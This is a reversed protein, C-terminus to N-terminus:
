KNRLSMTALMLDWIIELISELRTVLFIEYPSLQDLSKKIRNKTVERNENLKVVNLNNYNYFLEYFSHIQDSIDRTIQKTHQHFSKKKLKLLDRAAYKYVDVISDLNDVIHYLIAMENATPYVKKNLLRLSYSVFKTITDHKREFSELVTRDYTSLAQVFEKSLSNIMLFIRRLSNDFDDISNSSYDKIMVFGKEQQVVEVGVLRDVEFHIVSLTSVRQNIRFHPVIDNEYHVHIEDYGIRYCSRIRLIISTRDLGTIDIEVKSLKQRRETGIRLEKEGIEVEVEDGKQINNEKVWKSPLSVMLTSPGIRSVKRKM